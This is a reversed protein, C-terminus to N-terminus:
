KKNIVEQGLLQGVLFCTCYSTPVYFLIPMSVYFLDLQLLFLFYCQRFLYHMNKIVKELLLIRTIETVKFSLSLNFFAIILSLLKQKGAMSGKLKATQSKSLSVKSHNLVRSAFVVLVVVCKYM